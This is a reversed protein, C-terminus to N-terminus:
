PFKTARSEPGVAEMADLADLLEQRLADAKSQAVPAGVGNVMLPSKQGPDDAIDFLWTKHTVRDLMLRASDDILLTQQRYPAGMTTTILLQSIVPFRRKAGEILRRLDEGQFSAPPRLGAVGLATTSVDILSVPRTVVEGTPTGAPYKALLPIRVFEEYSDLGHHSLGHEGLAEGHDSTIFLATDDWQGAARLAEAIRGIAQDADLIADRYCGLGPTTDFDRCPPDAAHPDYIHLWWFGEAKGDEILSVATDTLADLNWAEPGPGEPLNPYHFTDFGTEFGFGKQFIGAPGDDVIARTPLAAQRFIDGITPHKDARPSAFVRNIDNDKDSFVYRFDLTRYAPEFDIALPIRGRLLSPLALTTIGGSTYAREFRTWEDRHAHLYPTTADEAGYVQMFDPRLMDVSIVIVLRANGGPLVAAPAVEEAPADGNRCNDDVGDALVERALPNVSARANDCDAGGLYAPLYGDEDKDFVLLYPQAFLEALYDSRRPIPQGPSSPAFFLLGHSGLILFGLIALKPRLNKGTPRTYSPSLVSLWGLAGLVLLWEFFGLVLHTELYLRPVLIARNLWSLALAGLLLIGSTAAALRTHTRLTERMALDAFHPALAAGSAVVLLALVTLLQANPDMFQDGLSEVLLYRQELWSVGAAGLLMGPLTLMLVSCLGPRESAFRLIPYVLLLAGVGAFLWFDQLGLARGLFYLVGSFGLGYVLTLVALMVRKNFSRAGILARRMGWIFLTAGISPLWIYGTAALLNPNWFLAADTEYFQYVVGGFLLAVLAALSVLLSDHLLLSLDSPAGTDSAQALETDDTSPM